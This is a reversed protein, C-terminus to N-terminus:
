QGILEKIAPDGQNQKTILAAGTDVRPPPPTGKIQQMLAKVGEYGMKNPNQAVLADIQGANLADVLPRTADFGVFKKKGALNNQKLALLLGFTTSENPAFVGDAEQLKDMMRMAEAKASDMTAGGYRNDVIVQIDSSKKLAALFGKERADTSASGEAYRLIAVKGKGGLLRVMEDGATAGAKENDTAVFSVFDKGAEGVLASDIIVVPINKAKAAAVPGKLAAEDLPALVIGSVGESVFQQVVQIQTARDDEKLPGKWIMEAGTEDAAKKAGAEVANWFAHTTGKPIVAVRISSSSAGGAGGSGGATGPGGKRDCGFQSLAAVIGLMAVVTIGASSLRM